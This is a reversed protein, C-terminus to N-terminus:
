GCGADLVSRAATMDCLEIYAPLDWTVQWAAPEEFEYFLGSFYSQVPIEPFNELIGSFPRFFRSPTHVAATM